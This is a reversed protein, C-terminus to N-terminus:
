EKYEGVIDYISWGVTEILGGHENIGGYNDGQNSFFTSRGDERWMPALDDIREDTYFRDAISGPEDGEQMPATITGNRLVYRKGPELRITLRDM